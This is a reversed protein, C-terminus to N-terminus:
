VEMTVILSFGVPGLVAGPQGRKTGAGYLEATYVSSQLTLGLKAQDM